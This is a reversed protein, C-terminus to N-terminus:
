NKCHGNKQRYPVWVACCDPESNQYWATIVDAGKGAFAPNSVQSRITRSNTKIEYCYGPLM